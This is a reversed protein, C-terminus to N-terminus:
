KDGRFDPHGVLRYRDPWLIESDGPETKGNRLDRWYARYDYFHRRDDPDPNLHYMKAKRAYWKQFLPETVVDVAYDECELTGIVEAGSGDVGLYVEIAHEDGTFAYEACAKIQRGQTEYVSMRAPMSTLDCTDPDNPGIWEDQESSYAGFDNLGAECIPQTLSASLQWILVIFGIM